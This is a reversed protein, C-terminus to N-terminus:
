NNFAKLKLIEDKTPYSKAAGVKKVSLASAYSALNLADSIEYGQALFGVFTGNYCDGAGTTDVALVKYAPIKIEKDKTILKSGNSGMTVIVNNLKINSELLKQYEGENPTVFDCLEMVDKNLISFPAPNLIVIKNLKKAIKIIYEIVKIDLELQLLIYDHNKILEINNDIDTKDLKKNAGSNVIIENEGSEDEVMIIATGTSTNKIIPKVNLNYKSLENLVYDLNNDNGLATLFTTEAGTLSAAVAQNLGKGGIAYEFSESFTTEGRDPFKKTRIIYDVNSSGIVLVKKM